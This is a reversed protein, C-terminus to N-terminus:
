TLGSELGSEEFNYETYIRKLEDIAYPPNKRHIMAHCNPCLPVLDKAPNVEYSGGQESIPVIHHVHIFGEGIPGYKELFNFFCIQCSLGFREICQQRAVPNREYKTQEVNFQEGEFFPVEASKFINDTIRGHQNFNFDGNTKNLEVSWVGFEGIHLTSKPHDLHILEQTFSLRDESPIIEYTEQPREHLYWAPWEGIQGMWSEGKEFCSNAIELAQQKNPVKISIYYPEKEQQPPRLYAYNKTKKILDWGRRPMIVSLTMAAYFRLVGTGYKKPAKGSPVLEILVEEWNNSSYEM